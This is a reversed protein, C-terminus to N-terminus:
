AASGLVGVGLLLVDISLLARAELRGQHTKSGRMLVCPGMEIEQEKSGVTEPFFNPGPANSASCNVDGKM